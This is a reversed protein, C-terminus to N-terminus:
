GAAVAFVAVRAALRLLEDQSRRGTKRFVAKLQARATHISIRLRAPPRRLEQGDLLLGILRREATTLGFLHAGDEGTGVREQMPVLWVATTVGKPLDPNGPAVPGATTVAQSGTPGDTVVLQTMSGAWVKAFATAVGERELVTSAPRLIGARVELGLKKRVPD